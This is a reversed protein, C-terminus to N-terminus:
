TKSFLKLNEKFDWRWWNRLAIQRGFSWRICYNSWWVAFGTSREPSEANPALRFVNEKNNKIKRFSIGRSTCKQQDPFLSAAPRSPEFSQWAPKSSVLNKKKVKISFGFFVQHLIDPRYDAPDKNNKLLFKRHKDSSLIVYEGGIQFSKEQVKSLLKEKPKFVRLKTNDM